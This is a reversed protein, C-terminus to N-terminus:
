KAAASLASRCPVASVRTMPASPMQLAARMLDAWRFVSVAVTIHLSSAESAFAEHIFGRPIYM